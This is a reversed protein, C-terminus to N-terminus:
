SCRDSIVKRVVRVAQDIEDASVDHHTVFRVEYSGTPVALVGHERLSEVFTSSDLTQLKAMVINTQVRDLDITLGVCESLGEALRRAKEHDEPLRSIMKELAVLGAAALVGVQRMGGGMRKRVRKAEKVFALSGALLSGAPACLGKSLCVMVSDFSRTLHSVPCGLAVAAHFVRAGDLHVPIGRQHARVTIDEMEELSLIVGGAMNHTNELVILGAPSHYYVPPNLSAEIAKWTLHGKIGSVPRPQCGAFASIAGLEWEFVHSRAEAVVQQGPRTHIQIAIQNGMTGTPVFLAAEQGLLEAAFEQLRQVTPDEGFVDDGVEATSMARRM